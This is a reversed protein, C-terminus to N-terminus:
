LVSASIETTTPTRDLFLQVFIVSFTERNELTKNWMLNEEALPTVNISKVKYMDAFEYSGM